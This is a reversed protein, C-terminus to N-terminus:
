HDHRVEQDALVVVGSNHSGGLVLSVHFFMSDSVLFIKKSGM